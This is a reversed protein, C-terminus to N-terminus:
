SDVAKLASKWAKGFASIVKKAKGDALAAEGKAMAAEAKAIAKANGAADVAEDIALQAASRTASILEDLLVQLDAPDIEEGFKQQLKELVGASKSAGKFVPKGGLATLHNNDIWNGGALAGGLADRAKLL